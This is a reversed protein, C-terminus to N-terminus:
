QLKTGVMFQQISDAPKENELFVLIENRLAFFNKLCDGAGLWRVDCFLYLDPYAANIVTLLNKFKRHTLTRAGDRFFNFIKTLSKM